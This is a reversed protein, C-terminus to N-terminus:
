HYSLLSNISDEYPKFLYAVNEDFYGCRFDNLPIGTRKSLMLAYFYTQTAAYKELEAKPKYDWIWIKGDEVRLVDIHGTLPENSNFIENYNKIEAPLIWVPVEVSVTKSDNELMFRQVKTHASRVNIKALGQEALQSVEHGKVKKLDINLNFKIASSRPGSQFYDDPCSTFLEDLYKNLSSYGNCLLSNRKLDHVCYHYFWGHKFSLHRIM